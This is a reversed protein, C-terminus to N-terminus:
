RGPPFLSIEDANHLPLDVGGAYAIDRGNLLVRWGPLPRYLPEVEVWLTDEKEASHWRRELAEQRLQPYYDFIKVLADYVKANVPLHLSTESTHIMERLRGFVKLRVAWAGSDWQRAIHYGYLMLHLQATLYRSWGEMGGAIREAPLGAERMFRSFTALVLGISGTIYIPPTHIHRPGHGAHWKGARFLYLAFEDSLDIGLTRALWISFFRRREELHAEDVGNEWGLIAATEPVSQLYNYTNIVLETARALLPEVSAAMAARQDRDIGNFRLLRAWEERPDPNLRVEFSQPEPINNM